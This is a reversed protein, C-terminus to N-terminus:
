LADQWLSLMRRLIDTAAAPDGGPPPPASSAAAPNFLPDGPQGRKGQLRQFASQGKQLLEFQSDQGQRRRFADIGGGETLPASKALPGTESGLGFARGSLGYKPDLKNKVGIIRKRGEEDPLKEGTRAELLKKAADVSRNAAGRAASKVNRDSAEASRAQQEAYERSLDNLERQLEVRRTEIGIIREASGGFPDSRVAAEEEALRSLEASLVGMKQATSMENLAASRKLDDLRKQQDNLREAKAIADDAGGKGSSSKGTTAASPVAPRAATAGAGGGGPAGARATTAEAAAAAAARRADEVAKIAEHAQEFSQGELILGLYAAATSVLDVSTKAAAFGTLIGQVAVQAADGLSRFTDANQQITQDLDAFFKQADGGSGEGILALATNISDGLNEYSSRLGGQARELKAFGDLTGDIFKNMSLGMKQIAETDATGFASQLVTRIQPVREAIQSIEEATVKGKAIIQTFALLVGDLDAKGKGVLTLANGVETILRTSTAASLGVSRLKVDAEVVQNFGLGPSRAVNALENLRRTVGEVSGEVALMAQRNDDAKLTAEAIGSALQGFSVGAIGVGVLRGLDVSKLGNLSGQMQAATRKVIVEANKAGAQLRANNWGLEVQASM